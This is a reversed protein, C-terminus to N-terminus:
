SDFYTSKLEYIDMVRYNNPIRPSMRFLRNRAEAKIHPNFIFLYEYHIPLVETLADITGKVKEQLNENRLTSPNNCNFKLEVMKIYVESNKKIGFAIDMSRNKEVRGISLAVEEELKDGNIVITSLDFLQHKDKNPYGECDLIDNIKQLCSSYFSAVKHNITTEKCYKM